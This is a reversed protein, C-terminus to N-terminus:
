PDFGRGNDTVWLEVAQPGGNLRISVRTAQAHKLANNLAEVAIGCLDPNWVFPWGGAGEVTLQADVGAHIEVAEIRTRLATELDNEESLQPRLEYLLLRMEKLSQRASRQMRDLANRLPEVRNEELLYFATDASLVLSHVSQAVSDHMDRALRRREELTAAEEARHQLLANEVAVGVHNAITALLVITDVSKGESMAPDEDVFLTFVGLTHGKVRIPAAIAYVPGMGSVPMAEIITQGGSVVREWLRREVQRTAMQKILEPASGGQVVSWVMTGDENQAEDVLHIIGARARTAALTESLVKELAPPLDFHETTARAVEYLTQMQRTREAVLGEMLELTRARQLAIGGMEAIAVLLRRDEEQFSDPRDFIIQLLGLIQDKTQLPAVVLRRGREGWADLGICQTSRYGLHLGVIEEEQSGDVVSAQRLPCARCTAAETTDFLATDGGQLAQWCPLGEPHFYIEALPGHLGRVGAIRLDGEDLLLIGAEAGLIKITEEILAVVMEQTSESRRLAASVQALANMEDARKQLAQTRWEVETTMHNFSETLFGIEDRFQIPMRKGLNGANIQSVGELLNELPKVLNARFFLSFSWVILGSSVLILYALPALLRHLYSRFELYYDEVLGSSNASFPLDTALHLGHPTTGRNGPTAGVLWVALRPDYVAHTYTAPLDRYNFEFVGDPHLVLQFTYGEEAANGPIDAWTVVVKEPRNSIFLTGIGPEAGTLPLALPFIAPFPGYRYLIYQWVIEQEFSIGGRRSVYVQRWSQSFFPFYFPLEMQVPDAGDLREGWADDFHFPAAAVDYGGLANPTFRVSQRDVLFNSHRYGAIAGPSLIWGVSGLLALLASLSIGVLKVVFSVRQPLYNLYILTFLFLTLLIGLSLILESSHASLRLPLLLLQLLVILLPLGGLLTLTRAAQAPQEPSLWFRQWRGRQPDASSAHLTQRFLVVIAWVFAAVLPIDAWPPRFRVIGQTLAVYRGLALVGEGLIYLLSLWLVLRAEWEQGPTASPFRYVFQLFFCLFIAITVSELPTAYYKWDPHLSADLFLLLLAGTLATFSLALFETQRSHGARPKPDRVVYWLYTSIVATLVWQTLYGISAPTLYLLSM